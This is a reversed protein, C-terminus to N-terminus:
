AAKQVAKKQRKWVLWLALVMLALFEGFGLAAILPLTLQDYILTKLQGLPQFFPYLIVISKTLRFAAAYMLGIFFLFIMESAPMGYGIHYAAYLASALIIGPIIGFAEELRLQVWGRWFIAEFLGIALSLFILPLLQEFPPLKTQAFAPIYLALSFILQLVLSQKWNKTTIGLDAFTRKRIIVTWILPIGVGFLGAGVLAYLLFYGMGGWVDRGILFTASYLAGVVLLWSVAVVVLDANLNWRLKFVLASSKQISTNM